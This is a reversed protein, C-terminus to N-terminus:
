LDSFYPESCPAVDNLLDVFCFIGSVLILWNSKTYNIIKSTIEDIVSIVDDETWEKCYHHLIRFANALDGFCVKAQDRSAPTSECM